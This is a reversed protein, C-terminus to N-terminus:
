YYFGKKGNHTLLCHSRELYINKFSTSLGVPLTIPTVAKKCRELIVQRVYYEPCQFLM